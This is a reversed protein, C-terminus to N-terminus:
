LYVQSCFGWQVNNVVSDKMQRLLLNGEKRHSMKQQNKLFKPINVLKSTAM